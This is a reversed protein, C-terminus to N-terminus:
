ESQLDQDSSVGEKKKEKERVSVQSNGEGQSRILAFPKSAEREKEELEGGEEKRRRTLKTLTTDYRLYSAIM